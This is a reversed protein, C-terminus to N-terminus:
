RRVVKKMVPQMQSVEVHSVKGFKPIEQQVTADGHMPLVYCVHHSWERVDGEGLFCCSVFAGYIILYVKYGCYKM